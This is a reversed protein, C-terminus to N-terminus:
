KGPSGNRCICRKAIFIMCSGLINQLKKMVKITKSSTKPVIPKIWELVYRIKKGQIRLRHLMAIEAARTQHGKKEFRKVWQNMRNSAYASLSLQSQESCVALHHIHYWTELLIPTMKGNAIQESIRLREIKLERDLCRQLSSASFEQLFLDFHNKMVDLERPRSFKSAWDRLEGQLDVYAGEPLLPKFFSVLSRLQRIKVRLQHTHEPEAPNEFLYQLENAVEFFAAEIMKPVAYELKEDGSVYEHRIDSVRGNAKESSVLNLLQLGRYFKSTNGPVVPFERALTMGLKLLAAPKGKKLELELEHIPQNSRETIIEGQDLAIEVLNEEDDQWDSQERKFHTTMLPFLPNNGLIQQLQERIEQVEFMGPRPREDPLPSNWEGRQHMGGSAQGMKKVTAIWRDDKERVRYTLGQKLLHHDATDYYTSVLLSTSPENLLYKKVDSYQWLESAMEPKLLQLKLEIEQSENPQNSEAV